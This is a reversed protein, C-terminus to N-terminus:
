LRYPDTNFRDIMIDRRDKPMDTLAQALNNLTKSVWKRRMAM